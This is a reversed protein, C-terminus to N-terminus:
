LPNVVATLYVRFARDENTDNHHAPIPTPIQQFNSVGAFELGQKATGQLKGDM